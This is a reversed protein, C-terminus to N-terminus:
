GTGNRNDRWGLARCSGPDGGYGPAKSGGDAWRDGSVQEIERAEARRQEDASNELDGIIQREEDHKPM